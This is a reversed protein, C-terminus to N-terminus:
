RKSVYVKMHHELEIDRQLGEEALYLISYKNLYWRIIMMAGAMPPIVM